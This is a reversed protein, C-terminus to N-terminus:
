GKHYHVKEVKAMFYVNYYQTSDTDNYIYLRAKGSNNASIWFVFPIGVTWSDPIEDGTPTNEKYYWDEKPNSYVMRLTTSDYCWVRLGTRVTTSTSDTHLSICVVGTVLRNYNKTPFEIQTNTSQNAPATIKTWEVSYTDFPGSSGPLTRIESFVVDDIYGYDGANSVNHLRVEVKVYYANSLSTTTEEETHEDTDNYKKSIVTTASALLAGTRSYWYVRYEFTGSNATGHKFTFKCYYNHSPNVPILNSRVGAYYGEGVSNVTCKVSKGGKKSWDTVLEANGSSQYKTWFDPINDRDIDEEFSGNPVLNEPPINHETVPYRPIYGIDGTDSAFRLQDVPSKRYWLTQNPSSPDVTSADFKIKETTIADTAIKDAVIAGNEIDDTDIQRRMYVDDFYGESTSWCIVKAYYANTPAEKTGSLETWSTSTTQEIQDTSIEAKDKDYWRVNLSQIGSVSKAWCSFKYKETEKVNIYSKTFGQLGYTGNLLLSYSGGHKETTSVTGATWEKDADGSEFDGDPVLNISKGITLKETTIEKAGIKNATISGTKIKGGQIVTVGDETDTLETLTDGTTFIVKDANLNIIHDSTIIGNDIQLGNTIVAQDTVLHESRIAKASIAGAGITPIYSNFQLITPPKTNANDIQAIALLGISEGVANSYQQSYCLDDDVASLTTYFYWIGDNLTTGDTNANIKDTSGDAFTITADSISDPAAWYLKNYTPTNEDWWIKLNSSWPRNEIQLDIPKIRLPKTSEPSAQKNSENNAEDIATVWFYHTIYDADPDQVKWLLMNGRTTGASVADNPNSTISRYVQYHSLDKAGVHQWEVLIGNLVSTVSLGSPTDPPTDNTQTTKQTISSWSSAVGKQSVTACKIYYTTGGELDPTVVVPNGSQPQDVWMEIYESDTSKKYAIIYGGADEERTIEIKLWTRFETSTDIETTSDSTVTFSPASPIKDRVQTIDQIPPTEQVSGYAFLNFIEEPSLVRNYIRIEDIIGDYFENSSDLAGIFLSGTTNNLSKGSTMDITDELEGNIYIRIKGNTSDYTITIFTWANETPTPSTPNWNLVKTNDENWIEFFYKSDKMGFVYNYSGQRLFKGSTAGPITDAKFWFSWTVNSLGRLVSSDSIEVYSSTGNFDLAKGNKGDIWSTNYCTGELLSNSTDYIKTGTGEDLHLLLNIGYSSLIIPVNRGTFHTIDTTIIENAIYTPPNDRSTQYNITKIKNAYRKLIKEPSPIWKSSTDLETTLSFDKLRHNIKRVIQNTNISGDNFVHEVGISSDFSYATTLNKITEIPDKYAEVIKKAVEQCEENTTLYNNILGDGERLGYNSISTDDQYEGSVRTIIRINDIDMIAQEIEWTDQHVTPSLVVFEIENLDNWNPNGVKVWPNNEFKRGVPIQIKKWGVSQCWGARYRVWNGASDYESVYWYGQIATGFKDEIEFYNNSDTKLRIRMIFKLDEDPIPGSQLASLRYLIYFSFIGNEKIDLDITRKLWMYDTSTNPARLNEIYNYGEMGDMIKLLTDSATWNVTDETWNSDKVITNYLGGLVKQKNILNEISKEYDYSIANTFLNITSTLTGRPFAHFVKSNDVYFDWDLPSENSEGSCINRLADRIKVGKSFDVKITESSSAIDLSSLLGADVLPQLIQAMITTALTRGSYYTNRELLCKGWRQAVITKWRHTKGELNDKLEMIEGVFVTDGENDKELYISVTERLDPLYESPDIVFSATPIGDIDLNLEVNIETPYITNETGSKKCIIYSDVNSL